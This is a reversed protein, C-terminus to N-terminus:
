RWKYRTARGPPGQPLQLRDAAGQLSSGDLLAEPSPSAGKSVPRLVMLFVMFVESVGHFDTFFM